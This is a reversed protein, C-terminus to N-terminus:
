HRGNEIDHFLMEVIKWDFEDDIDVSNHYNMEYKLIKEFEDIKKARLSNVNIIYIAGNYEWVKPCEQRRTFSNKKSQILYGNDNEEFLNYYPNSKSETVSVVMDLDDNYLRVAEEIHKGTRFPSTPQLLIVKSFDKGKSEYFDLAHLLVEHTGANDRALEEPRKFPVNLGYNRATLIINEDDSSVCICSDDMVKRAADITYCILPKEGLLKINKGPLGKSGGRAPIIVLFDTKKEV